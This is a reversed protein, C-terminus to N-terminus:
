NSDTEIHSALSEINSKKKKRKLKDQPTKQQGLASTSPQNYDGLFVSQYNQGSAGNGSSAVPFCNVPPALSGLGSHVVHQVNILDLIQTIHSDPHNGGKSVL